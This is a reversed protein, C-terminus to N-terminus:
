GHHVGVRNLYVREGRRRVLWRGLRSGKAAERAVDVFRGHVKRGAGAKGMDDTARTALIVKGELEYVM